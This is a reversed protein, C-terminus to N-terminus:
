CIRDVIRAGRKEWWAPLDFKESLDGDVYLVCGSVQDIGKARLKNLFAPIDADEVFLRDRIALSSSRHNAGVM